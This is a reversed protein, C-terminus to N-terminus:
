KNKKHWLQYFYTGIMGFLSAISADFTLNFFFLQKGIDTEGNALVPMPFQILGIFAVTALIWLTGRHGRSTKRFAFLLVTAYLLYFLVVFWLTHPLHAKLRSSLLFSENQALPEPNESFDFNGLVDNSAGVNDFMVAATHEMRMFFESPHRLYHRIVTARSVQSEFEARLAEFEETREFAYVDFDIFEAFREDLGLDALREDVNDVDRLVGNFVSNFLTDSSIGQPVAIFTFFSFILPIACLFVAARNLSRREILSYGIVALVIPVSLVTYQPKATCFATVFFLFAIFTRKPARAPHTVMWIACALAAFFSVFAFPESFFSNFYALNNADGAMFILFVALAINAVWNHPKNAPHFGKIIFFVATLFSVAYIISLFRIDFITTSFLLMNLAKAAGIVFLHSSYLVIGSFFAAPNTIAFQLQMYNFFRFDPDDYFLSQIGFAGMVRDFDGSDALGVHPVSFLLQFLIAALVGTVFLAFGNKHLFRKM